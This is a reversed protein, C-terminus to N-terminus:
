LRDVVVLQGDSDLYGADGTRLWGDSTVTKATEEPNRHYGRFVASSRLLIEQRDGFDIQTQPLPVGVSDFSIEGDRHLVAIGCIETQGYIQKLNVGTSRSSTSGSRTSSGSSTRAWRPAARTAGGSAHSGWSSASPGPRWSTRSCAQRACVRARSGARAASR